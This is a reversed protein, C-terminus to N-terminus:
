ASPPPWRRARVCGAARSRRVRRPGSSTASGSCRGGCRGVQRDSCSRGTSRTRRRRARPRTARLAHRVPRSATACRDAGQRDRGEDRARHVRAHAPRGRDAAPVAADLLPVGAVRARRHQGAVGGREVHQRDAPRGGPPHAACLDRAARQVQDRRREAARRAAPVGRARAPVRLGAAPEVARDRHRDTRLRLPLVRLDHRAHARRFVPAAHARRRLGRRGSGRAARARRRHRPEPGLM